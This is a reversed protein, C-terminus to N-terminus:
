INRENSKNNSNSTKHHYFIKSIDIFLWDAALLQEGLEDYALFRNDPGRRWSGAHVEYISMPSRRQDTQRADPADYGGAILPRVSMCLLLCTAVRIFPFTHFPTPM